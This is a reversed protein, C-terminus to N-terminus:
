PDVGEVFLFLLRGAAKETQEGRYDSWGAQKTPVCERSDARYGKEQCVAPLQM